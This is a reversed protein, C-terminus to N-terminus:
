SETLRKEIEKVVGINESSFKRAFILDCSMLEEVDDITWTYPMGREWDIERQCSEYQSDVSYIRERFPSNWFLSQIAIEDSIFIHGFEKYLLFKHEIIYKVFDNTVSFWNPGMRLEM